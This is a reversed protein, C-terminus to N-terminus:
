RHDFAAKREHMWPAGREGLRLSRAPPRRPGFQAAVGGNCEASVGSRLQFKPRWPGPMGVM